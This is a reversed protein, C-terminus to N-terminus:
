HNRIVNKTKEIDRAIQRQLASVTSFDRVSRLRKIVEVTLRVPARRIAHDIVHVECSRTDRFVVRPGVHMAAPFIKRGLRVRCAYIGDRLGKPVDALRLNITPSGITRGRGAGAVVAATFSLPFPSSTM